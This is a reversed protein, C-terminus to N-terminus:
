IISLSTLHMNYPSVVKKIDASLHPLRLGHSPFMIANYIWSMNWTSGFGHLYSVLYALGLSLLSTKEAESCWTQRPMPMDLELTFCGHYVCNMTRLLSIRGEELSLLDFSHKLSLLTKKQYWNYRAPVQSFPRPKQLM